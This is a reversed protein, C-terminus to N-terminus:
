VREIEEETGFLGWPRILLVIIMIMFPIANALRPNIFNSAVLEAMAVIFAAPIAGKISDLGGVLAVAFSKIAIHGMHLSVSYNGGLLIAAVSTAFIGIGWAISTVFYINIGRQSALLTNEATARMQKGIESFRYFNLLAIFFLVTIVIMVIETSAVTSGGPLLYFARWGFPIYEAEGGWILIAASYLVIGLAVTLIITSFIPQAAMPKILLAYIVLGFMFSLIVSISLAIVPYGTILQTLTVALYATMIVIDSYAFNLVRSSKYIVIFGASLMAYACALVVVSTLFQM